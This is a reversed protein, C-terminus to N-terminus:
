TLTLTPAAYVRARLEQDLLYLGKGDKAFLDYRSVLDSVNKEEEAQEKVFWHLFEVTRFDKLAYAEAYIHNISATIFQEHKHAARLPAAYDDFTADPAALPFLKVAEDNHMLYARLLMAHDREEQTQIYFWNEFGDLSAEDYYNAIALYFYASYLEKNIQENLLRAITEHLM